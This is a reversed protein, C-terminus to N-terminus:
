VDADEEEGTERFHLVLCPFGSTYHGDEERLLVYGQSEMRAVLRERAEPEDTPCRMEATSHNMRM